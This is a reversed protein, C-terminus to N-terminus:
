SDEEGVIEFVGKMRKRMRRLAALVDDKADSHLVRLQIRMQGQNPSPDWEEGSFEQGEEWDHLSTLVAIEQETWGPLDGKFRDLAGALAGYDWESLESTRNDTIAYADLEEASLDSEVCAIERWKLKLAAELTGNGAKVTGDGRIVIPKQQGFRDLSQRIAEINAGPHDMSNDPDLTLDAVPRLLAALQENGKWKRKGKMEKM